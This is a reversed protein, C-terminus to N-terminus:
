SLGFPEDIAFLWHGGAHRRLVEVSQGSMAVPKGDPGTLALQWKATVLAVDGVQSVVRAGITMTPKGALFGALAARIAAHGTVTTGPQPTLSAAPEYLAVLADLDGANLAQAFLTDVDEPRTAPM